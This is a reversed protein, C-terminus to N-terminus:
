IIFQCALFYLSTRFESEYVSTSCKNRIVNHRLVETDSKYGEKLVIYNNFPKGWLAVPPTNIQGITISDNFCDKFVVKIDM